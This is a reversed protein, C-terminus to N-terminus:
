LTLQLELALSRKTDKNGGLSLLFLLGLSEQAEAPLHKSCVCCWLLQPLQLTPLLM